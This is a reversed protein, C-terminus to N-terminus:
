EITIAGGSLTATLTVSDLLLVVGDSGATVSFAVNALPPSGDGMDLSANGSFTARGDSDVSGGTVNGEVTIEQASGLASGQLAAHFTGSATGDAEIFVGTAIDVGALTVPGLESGDAFLGSAAATVSHDDGDARVPATTIALGLVIAFVCLRKM